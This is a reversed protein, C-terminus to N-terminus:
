EFGVQRVINESKLNIFARSHSFLTVGFQAPLTSGFSFCSVSHVQLRGCILCSRKICFWYVSLDAVASGPPLLQFLNSDTICLQSPQLCTGNEMIIWSALSFCLLWCSFNRLFEFRITIRVFSFTFYAFLLDLTACLEIARARWSPAQINTPSQSSVRQSQSQTISHRRGKRTQKKKRIRINRACMKMCNWSSSSTKIQARLEVRCM